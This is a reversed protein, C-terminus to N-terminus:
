GLSAEGELVHPVEVRVASGGMGVVRGLRRRKADKQAFLPALNGDGGDLARYTMREACGAREITQASETDSDTTGGVTPVVCTSGSHPTFTTVPRASSPHSCFTAKLLESPNPPWLADSAMAGYRPSEYSLRLISM